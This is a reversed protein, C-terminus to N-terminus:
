TAAPTGLLFINVTPHPGSAFGSNQWDIRIVDTAVGGVDAGIAQVFVRPNINMLVDRTCVVWGKPGAIRAAGKLLIDFYGNPTGCDTVTCSILRLGYNNSYRAITFGQVDSVTGVTAAVDGAAPGATLGNMSIPFQASFASSFLGPFAAALLGSFTAAFATATHAWVEWFEANPPENNTSNKICTYTHGDNQIKDGVTYSESADWDPIGRAMLYRTAYDVKNLIWNLWRRPISKASDPLGSDNVGGPDVMNSADDFCWPKSLTPKAGISM